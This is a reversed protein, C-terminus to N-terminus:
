GPRHERGVAVERSQVSFAELPDAKGLPDAVVFQLGEVKCCLM